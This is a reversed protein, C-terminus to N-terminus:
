SASRERSTDSGNPLRRASPSKRVQGIALRRLHHRYFLAPGNALLALREGITVQQLEAACEALLGPKRGTTAKTAAHGAQSRAMCIEDHDDGRTITASTSSSFSTSSTSSSSAAPRQADLDILLWRRYLVNTDSTTAKAYREIRNDARALLDRRVPNLTTFIGAGERHLRAAAMAMQRLDDFYGSITGTRTSPVRLEAVSGPEVIVRLAAEITEVTLKMEALEEGIAM